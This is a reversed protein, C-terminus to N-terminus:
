NAQTRGPLTVFSLSFLHNSSLWLNENKGQCSMSIKLTSKVVTYTRVVSSCKIRGHFMNCVLFLSVQEGTQSNFYSSNWHIALLLLAQSRCLVPIAKPLRIRSSYVTNSSAHGTHCGRRNLQFLQFAGSLMGTWNECLLLPLNWFMSLGKTWFSGAWALQYM